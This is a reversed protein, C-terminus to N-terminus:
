MKPLYKADIGTTGGPTSTAWTVSGNTVTPTMVMKLTSLAANAGAGFTLTMVGNPGVTIDSLNGSVNGTAAVGTYATFDAALAPVTTYRAVYENVHLQVTRADSLASAAETRIIYDQYQPVAVSALIGIIAVVIMLEILTFGQQGKM